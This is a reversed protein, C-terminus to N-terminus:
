RTFPAIHREYATVAQDETFLGAADMLRYLVVTHWFDRTDENSPLLLDNDQKGRLMAIKAVGHKYAVTPAQFTWYSLPVTPALWARYLDRDGAALARIAEQAIDEFMGMCGLLAHSYDGVPYKVGSSEYVGRGVDADGGEILEVYHYDDGTKIIKGAAAIRRRIAVERDADLLSMKASEFNDLDMVRYFSDAPFYDRMKPNFAEGLWHALLPGEAADDIRSFVDVFDDADRGVLHPSPFIAVKGGKRQIGLMQVIYADAIEANTPTSSSVDDTGAGFYWRRGDSQEATQDLLFQVHRLPLLDRQATDMGDAVGLGADWIYERISATTEWDVVDLGPDSTPGSYDADIVIHVAADVERVPTADASARSVPPYMRARPIYYERSGDQAPLWIESASM